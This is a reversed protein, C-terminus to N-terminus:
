ERKIPLKDLGKELKGDKWIAYEGELLKIGKINVEKCASVIMDNEVLPLEGEIKSIRYKEKISFLIKENSPSIDTLCIANWGMEKAKKVAADYVTSNWAIGRFFTYGPPVSVNGALAPSVLSLMFFCISIFRLVNKM